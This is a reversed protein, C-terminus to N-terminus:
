PVFRSRPDAAHPPLMLFSGGRLRQPSDGAAGICQDILADQFAPGVAGLTATVAGPLAVAIVQGFGPTVQETSPTVRIPAGFDSAM